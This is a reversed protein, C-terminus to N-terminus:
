PVGGYREKQAMILLWSVGVLLVIIVLFVWANSMLTNMGTNVNVMTGGGVDIAPEEISEAADMMYSFVGHLLGILIIIIIFIALPVIRGQNNLKM